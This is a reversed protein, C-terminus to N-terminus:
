NFYLYLTWCIGIFIAILISITAEKFKTDEQFALVRVIKAIYYQAYTISIIVLVLLATLKLM